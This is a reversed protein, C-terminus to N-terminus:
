VMGLVTSPQNEELTVTHFQDKNMMRIAKRVQNIASSPNGAGHWQFEYTRQNPHGLEKLSMHWAVGIVLHGHFRIPIQLTSTSTPVDPADYTTLGLTKVETPAPYLGFVDDEHYYYQPTGTVTTNTNVDISDLKLRSIPQLKSSDYTVRKISLMRAPVTYEQQDAVTSQTYRNQICFTEQAMELAAFYLYNGIIEESSWFKSGVANLMRRAATEIESPTM